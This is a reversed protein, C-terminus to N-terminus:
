GEQRRTLDVAASAGSRVSVLVTSRAGDELALDVPVRECDMDSRNEVALRAGEMAVSIRRTKPSLVERWYKGVGFLTDVAFEGHFDALVSRILQETFRPCANGEWQRMHQHCMYVMPLGLRKTRHLWFLLMAFHHVHQPDCPHRTTLEM